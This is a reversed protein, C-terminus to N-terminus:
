MALVNECNEGATSSEPAECSCILGPGGRDSDRGSSRLESRSSSIVVSVISLHEEISREANRKDKCFSNKRVM